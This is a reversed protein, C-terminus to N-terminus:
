GFAVYAPAGTPCSYVLITADPPLTLIAPITGTAGAPVNCWLVVPDGPGRRFGLTYGAGVPGYVAFHLAAPPISIEGPTVNSGSVLGSGWRQRRCDQM